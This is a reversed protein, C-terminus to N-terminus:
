VFPIDDEDIERYEGGELDTPGCNAYQKPPETAGGVESFKQTVKSFVLELSGTPGNRQKSINLNLNDPKTEREAKPVRSLMLVVDADQEISGSERLHSLMPVGDDNREAERSLQSLAVVPVHLERALGKISRSIESIETQRNESKGSIHMLQMYDIIVLGLNPHQAAHRRARSRMEM